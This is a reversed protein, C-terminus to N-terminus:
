FSIAIGFVEWPPKMDPVEVEAGIIKAGPSDDAGGDIIKSGNAEVNGPPAPQPSKYWTAVM